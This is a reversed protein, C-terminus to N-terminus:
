GWPSNKYVYEVFWYVSDYPMSKDISAAKIFFGFDQNDGTQIANSGDQTTVFSYSHKKDEIQLDRIGAMENQAAELETAGTFRRPNFVNYSPIVEHWLYVEKTYLYLSDRLLDLESATAPITDVVPTATLSDKKKCSSAGVLAFFIIALVFTTKM